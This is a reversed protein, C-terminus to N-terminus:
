FDNKSREIEVGVSKVFRVYTVKEVKVIVKEAKPNALCLKAIDNAFAEVTHKKNNEGLNLIKESLLHYNISDEVNDSNGATKLDSFLTVNVLLDQSVEREWEPVGIVGRVLLDKIFVKDM